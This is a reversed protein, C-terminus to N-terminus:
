GRQVTFCWWQTSIKAAASACRGPCEDARVLVSDKYSLGMGLINDQCLPVLANPYWKACSLCICTKYQIDHYIYIYIYQKHSCPSAYIKINYMYVHTFVQMHIYECIDICLCMNAYISECIHTHSCVYMCTDDYITM